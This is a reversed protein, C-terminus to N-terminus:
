RKRRTAELVAVRERLAALEDHTVRDKIEVALKSIAAEILDIKNLKTVVEALKSRLLLWAVYMVVPAPLWGLLVSYDMVITTAIFALM